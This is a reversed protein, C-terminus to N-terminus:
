LSFIKDSTKTREFTAFVAHLGFLWFLVGKPITQKLCWTMENESRKYRKTKMPHSKNNIKTVLCFNEHQLFHMAREAQCVFHLALNEKM